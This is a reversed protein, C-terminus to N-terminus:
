AQSGAPVGGAAAEVERTRDQGAQLERVRGADIDFGIVRSGARALAAAVPLGVYGLGIVAIRRGHSMFYHELSNWVGNVGSRRSNLWRISSVALPRSGGPTLTVEVHGQM